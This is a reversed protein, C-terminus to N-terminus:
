VFLRSMHLTVIGSHGKSWKFLSYRYSLIMSQLLFSCRNAKHERTRWEESSEPEPTHRDKIWRQRFDLEEDNDTIIEEESAFPEKPNYLQWRRRRQHGADWTKMSKGNDVAETLTAADRKQPRERHIPPMNTHTNLISM